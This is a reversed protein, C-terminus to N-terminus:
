SVGEHDAPYGRKIECVFGIGLGMFGLNWFNRSIAPVVNDDM